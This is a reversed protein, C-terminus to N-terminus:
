RGPLIGSLFLTNAMKAFDRETQVIEQKCKERDPKCSWLGALLILFIFLLLNGIIKVGNEGSKVAKIMNQAVSAAKVGRYKKLGGIMLPNLAKMITIATKEGTRFEKREGLLFSPQLIYISKFPINQLDREMEGKTRLYFNSSDAKAGISSVV